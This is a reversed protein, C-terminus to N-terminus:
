HVARAYGRCFISTRRPSRLSRRHTDGFLVCVMHECICAYAVLLFGVAFCVLNRRQVLTCGIGFVWGGVIIGSLAYMPEGLGLVLGLGVALGSVCALFLVKNVAADNNALFLKHFLGLLLGTYSNAFYLFTHLCERVGGKIVKEEYAITGPSSQM